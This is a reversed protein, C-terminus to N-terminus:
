KILDENLKFSFQVELKAFLEHMIKNSIDKIDLGLVFEIAEVIVEEPVSYMRLSSTIFKRLKKELTFYQDCPRAMYGRMLGSSGIVLEYFDSEELEPNYPAFIKEVEDTIRKCLYETAEPNSYAEVYIERLNNSLETLTIQIATETAYVFVPDMKESSVDRAMDFQRDFMIKALDLLVGDKTHFLNQFSSFSVGADKVIGSLTTKYYGKEIFLRVCVALIRTKTLNKDYKKTPKSDNKQM